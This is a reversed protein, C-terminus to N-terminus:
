VTFGVQLSGAGFVHADADNDFDHNLGCSCRISNIGSSSTEAGAAQLDAKGNKFEHRTAM